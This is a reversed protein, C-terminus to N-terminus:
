FVARLQIGALDIPREDGTLFRTHQWNARLHVERALRFTLSPEIRLVDDDWGTRGTGPTPVAIENFALTGARLAAFWEPLFDYRGEIYGGRARLDEGPMLPVQWESVYGEAFFHFQGALWEADFGLVRQVYDAPEGPFETATIGPDRNPGGIYPGLVGSVGLRLGDVPEYGLRALVQVGDELRTALPNSVSGSTAGLSYEFRGANGFLEWMVNWCGDYMMPLGIINRERRRLLDAATALGSADLTTRHQHVLPVGIVPNSNFYTSRLGFNGVPSPAMGVRASLWEHGAIDNIVLYAGNIRPTSEIDYLLEAFVGIDETIWRQAFLRMRLTSFPSDGRFNLNLGRTDPRTSALAEVQGSIQLQATAPAAAALTLAAVLAVSSTARFTETRM